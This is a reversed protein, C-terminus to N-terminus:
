DEVYYRGHKPPVFGIHGKKNKGLVWGIAYAEQKTIKGVATYMSCEEVPERLIDRSGETSMESCMRFIKGSKFKTVNLNRCSDCLSHPQDKLHFSM